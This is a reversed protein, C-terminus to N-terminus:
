YLEQRPPTFLRGSYIKEYKKFNFAFVSFIEKLIQRPLYLLLIVCVDPNFIHGQDNLLLLSLLNKYFFLVM